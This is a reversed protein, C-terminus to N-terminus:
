EIYFAKMKKDVIRIVVFAFFQNLLHINITAHIECLIFVIAAARQILSTYFLSKYVFIIISMNARDIINEYGM